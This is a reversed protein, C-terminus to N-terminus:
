VAAEITQERFHQAEGYAPTAPKNYMYRRIAERILESRNRHERAACEDIQKLMGPPFTVLVKQPM